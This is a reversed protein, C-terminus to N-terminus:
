PAKRRYINLTIRKGKAYNYGGVTAVSEVAVGAQAIASDFAAQQDGGVIIVAASDQALLNAAEPGSVFRTATGFAIRASPEAFGAIAIADSAKLQKEAIAQKLRQAIWPADLAPLAAHFLLGWAIAAGPLTLMAARLVAGRWMLWAGGATLAWLIAATTLGRISLRGDALPALAAAAGGLAAGVVVWAAIAARRLWIGWNALPPAGLRDSLAAGALLAVAPFLPLVYRPLKTPTLEFVIWSPIIWALCFLVGRDRRNRWIWPLGLLVFISGPWFSAPFTLLYAGPPAGHSEQGGVVKAVMDGGLSETLFAGHSVIMIWIFWPLFIVAALGVGPWPRLRLLWRARRGAIALAAATLGVVLVIVPGKILLGVGVAGWFLIWTRRPLAPATPEAMWAMALQAQAVAITLLLFADTDAQRAEYELIPTVALLAIAFLAAEAGFWRRGIALTVLLAGVAAALSPLRYTWIPNAKDEGGALATAAAQLWYIGAPKKLRAEEGNRIDIFDHSQLMQRSAQAFRAEDRDVAPLTMLGPLYLAFAVLVALAFVARSRMIPAFDM